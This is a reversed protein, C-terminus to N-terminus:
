RSQVRVKVNEPIWSLWARVTSARREPTSGGLTTRSKVLAALEAPAIKEVRYDRSILLSVADRLSPVRLMAGLLATTRAGRSKLSLFTAGEQTPEFGAEGRRVLGLYCAANGYYDAQREEFGFAEAIAEKDKPGAGAMIVLEVVKDLDNAQPYAGAPEAGAPIEELLRALDVEALPSEDLVYARNRIPVLEGFGEGFAFETLDYRGNGYAFFIPRVPKQALARWHLWPYWLQRIHFDERRGRKAEVLVISSGEYGADVEIQVRSVEVHRNGLPTTFAFNGSFFRGRLTLRMGADGCFAELLGAMHAFDLAQSESGERGRPWTEFAELDVRSKHVRVPGPDSDAGFRYFSKADPDPFLVYRGNRTPFLALGREALPAPREALTDVKAMLRPERAGASKMVDATLHFLGDRAISEDVPLADFLRRWAQDRELLGAM